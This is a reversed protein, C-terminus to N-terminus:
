GKGNQAERAKKYTLLASAARRRGIARGALGDMWGGEVVMCRLYAGVAEVYPRLAGVRRGSGILQEADLLAHAEEKAAYEEATACRYHLIDGDVAEPEVDDRFIVREDVGRLNWNAYRRDFLRVQMDPYWGCHRVPTGCYFNLRPFSYGRHSFGEAKMRRLTAQAGPSLEEDADISLVYTHSALSTAYQRQAGFGEMRREVVRCGKGLCIEVTRDTSGSDVVIIEDAIGSLSDICAGIRGEENLTLITASIHHHLSM